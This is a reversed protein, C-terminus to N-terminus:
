SQAKAAVIARIRAHWQEFDRLIPQVQQPDAGPAPFDLFSVEQLPNILDNTYLKLSLKAIRNQNQQRGSLGGVILGAPGLM